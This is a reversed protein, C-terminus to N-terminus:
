FPQEGVAHFLIRGERKLQPLFDSFYLVLLGMAKQRVSPRDPRDRTRLQGLIVLCVLDVLYDLAVGVKM